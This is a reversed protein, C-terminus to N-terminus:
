GSRRNTRRLSRRWRLPSGTRRRRRLGRRGHDPGRPPASRTSLARRRPTAEVLSRPRVASVAFERARSGDPLYSLPGCESYAAGPETCSHGGVMEQRTATSPFRRESVSKVPKALEHTASAVQGVWGRLGLSHQGGVAGQKGVHTDGGAALRTMIMFRRRCGAVRARMPPAFARNRERIAVGPRRSRLWWRATAIASTRFPRALMDVLGRPNPRGQGSRDCRHPGPAQGHRRRAPDPDTQQM